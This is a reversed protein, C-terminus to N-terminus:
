YPRPPELVSRSRSRIAAELELVRQREQDLAKQLALRARATDDRAAIAAQRAREALQEGAEAGRRARDAALASAATDDRERTLDERSRELERDAASIAREAAARAEDAKLKRALRDEAAARAARAEAAQDEATARSRQVAVVLGAMAIAIASLATFGAVIATRRRRAPAADRRDATAADRRNEDLWRRLAAWAEILADHVIAIGPGASGDVTGAVLLGADILQDILRAIAGDDQSLRRLEALPVTARTREATVLRLLLARVLPTQQPGLDAVVRDAHHALAGAVGGMAQYSRCTLMRHAVDRAEWLRAATFQIRPLAGPATELHDLMDDVIDDREFRFGALEAPRVIADRLGERGPPGVFFLGQSLESVFRPDEAIRDLCDSRIALVVRLPSTADDAIASLCATFAAREAPDPCRTYLEELQDVFVLLRRQDRLARLRLADGLRGPEDRLQDLPREPEDRDVAPDTATVWPGLADLLAELPRHSPQLVMSQWREGSRELAPIVGACVLSTKGVSAGGVVAMMPRDHIRAVLATIERDRGFLRDACSARLPSLGVYPNHDGTTLAPAPDEPALRELEALLEAVSQWRQAKDKRLCRDVIEVLAPPVGAPAAEAMSPMPLELMATVVLQNGDLPHLPHRGCIMRHLLIGCAWVDTLHDIEIGIGWQEPSMYRLTGMITGVRTLSTNTGTALELPSPMRPQGANEASVDQQSPRMVKAIGFDLVKVTGAETLFINDPKLDRHVIGHEHACELARLVPRMIEVARTYPLQQGNETLHTLPKGDLYELVMYPAGNHEDVEHITVINDHQCRATARAEALFRRTLEPQSSQLFKVAVRRGLRLDRALFVSGMGGEGIRKVMEYQNIRVGPRPAASTAHVGTTGSTDLGTSDFTDWASPRGPPASSMAQPRLHTSATPPSVAQNKVGAPTSGPPPTGIAAATGPPPTGIPTTPPEPRAPPPAFESAAVGIITRGQLPPQAVASESRLAPRAVIERKDEEVPAPGVSLEVPNDEVTVPVGTGSAAEGPGALHDDPTAGAVTTVDLDLAFIRRIMGGLVSRGVPLPDVPGASGLLTPASSIGRDLRVGAGWGPELSRDPSRLGLAAASTGHPLEQPVVEVRMGLHTTLADDIAVFATYRTTIQFVIGLREIEADHREGAFCHAELDAVRERGFLAAIEPNGDGRRPTRVRLRCRWEGDVTQGRVVLGGARLKVAVVVPSGAFVDPVAHPARHVLASGELALDTAIPARTRDLLRKVAREADGDLDCIVEAGRGVRAMATGFARNVSSGIGVVHLRCGAPLGAHVAACLAEEGAIYGDTAVVVQRQAGPRLRQLAELMAARMETGGGASLARLWRIAALKEDRTAAVPAPQYRQPESSFAILELRDDEGLSEILLAIVQKAKDLPRGTMSGSTDILVILDRAFTRTVAAPQPPVITVLGFCEDGHEPRMMALSLGTTPGAVPWRLVLDRDLRAGARDALEVVGDDGVTLAHSPSSPTRGASLTDDIAIAIRIRAAVGGPATVIQTGRVAEPRDSAAVYRPGIVTPFRLEWEGEPLWILRLDITIRAILAQGAPLNGISQTFVDAREQELLAATHGAAVAQEFRERADQKRVVRGAITRDSIAFAYGSVAGDPPLPMRYIVHLTEAHRNEFRQELVLRAIGGRATGRLSASVLPLSRGDATVVEAGNGRPGDDVPDIPAAPLTLEARDTVRPRPRTLEPLSTLM